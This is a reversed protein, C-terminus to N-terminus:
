PGANPASIGKAGVSGTFGTTGACGRLTNNTFIVYDNGSVSNLSFETITNGNPGLCFTNGTISHSGSLNAGIPASLTIDAAGVNAANNGYLHAGGTVTLRYGEYEIGNAQAGNIIGGNITVVGTRNFFSNAVKMGANCGSTHPTATSTRAYCAAYLFNFQMSQADTIDIANAGSAETEFDNFVGFAPCAGIVAAQLTGPIGPMTCDIKLATSTTTIATNNTRLSASFGHWWIGRAYQVGNPPTASFMKIRSVNVVDQRTLQGVADPNAGYGTFEFVGTSGPLAQEVAIDDLNLLLGGALKILTYPSLASIHEFYMNRGFNAQILPKLCSTAGTFDGGTIKNNFFAVDSVGGGYVYNQSADPYFNFVPGTCSNDSVIRTAPGQGRIRLGECSKTISVSKLYYSGRGLVLEGAVRGEASNAMACAYDIAAQVCADNATTGTLQEYPCFQPSVQTAPTLRIKGNLFKGIVVDDALRVDGNDKIRANNLPRDFAAAPAVSAFGLAVLFLFRAMNM